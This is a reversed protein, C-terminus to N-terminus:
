HQNYWRVYSPLARGRHSSSAYAFRYAWERLLTKVLAEAKGHTQPRRSRTYRRAIGLESCAAAWAHSRYGNGNDSLVREITIGRERYWTHARRLFAVCDAPGNAPSCNPTPSAHTTPTLVL